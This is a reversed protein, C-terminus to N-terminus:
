VFLIATVRMRLKNIFLIRKETCRPVFKKFAERIDDYQKHEIWSPTGNYAWTSFLLSKAAQKEVLKTFLKGYKTTKEPHEFASASSDQLVFIAV